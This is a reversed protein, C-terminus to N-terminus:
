RYKNLVTSIKKYRGREIDTIGANIDEKEADSLTDWGDSENGEVSNILTNFVIQLHSEPLSDIYRFLQLKLDSANIETNIM